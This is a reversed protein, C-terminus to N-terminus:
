KYYLTTLITINAMEISNIKIYNTNQPKLIENKVGCYYQSYKIKNTTSTNKATTNISKNLSTTTNIQQTKQQIIQNNQQDKQRWRGNEDKFWKGSSTNSNNKNTTQTNKKNLGLKVNNANPFQTFFEDIDYCDKIQLRTGTEANTKAEIEVAVKKGEGILDSKQNLLEDNFICTEYVGSLDLLNVFAFKKKNRFRIRVSTIVGAMLLRTEKDYTTALVDTGEEFKYKELKEKYSKLPHTNMYFGFIEFELASLTEINYEPYQKLKPIMPVSDDEGFMNMVTKTTNERNRKSWEQAVDILAQENELITRITIGFCNWSGSKAMSEITKKSFLAQNELGRGLRTFFDQLDKFKGVEERIRVIEKALIERNNGM